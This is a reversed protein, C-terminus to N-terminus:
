RSIQYSAGGGDISPSDSLTMTTPPMDFLWAMVPRRRPQTWRRALRHHLRDDGRMLVDGRARRDNECDSASDIRSADRISRATARVRGRATGRAARRPAPRSRARARLRRDRRRGAREVREHRHGRAVGDRERFREGGIGRDEDDRADCEAREAFAEDANRVGRREVVDARPMSRIPRQSRAAPRHFPLMRGFSAVADRSSETGNAGRHLQLRFGVVFFQRYWRRGIRDRRGLDREIAVDQLDLFLVLEFFRPM